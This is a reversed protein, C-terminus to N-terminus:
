LLAGVLGQVGGRGMHGQICLAHGRAHLDIGAGKDQTGVALHQAIGGEDEVALLLKALAGNPKALGTSEAQVQPAQRWLRALDLEHQGDVLACGAALGEPLDCCGPHHQPIAALGDGEPQGRLAHGLGREDHALDVAVLLLPLHAGHSLAEHTPKGGQGAM